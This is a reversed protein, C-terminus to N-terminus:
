GVNKIEHNMKYILGYRNPCIYNKQWEQLEKGSVKTMAQSVFDLTIPQNYLAISLIDASIVKMGGKNKYRGFTSEIIDSCCLLQDKGQYLPAHTKFYADITQIFQQAQLSLRQTSQSFAEVEQRWRQYSAESLGARKLITSSIRILERVEQLRCLLPCDERYFRLHNRAEESLRTWWQDMRDTWELLTFIRLFRDKVRLNPPLLINYDTLILRQRLEGTQACFAKLAEDQEFLQKVANMMVHTCDIVWCLGLQRVAARISTGQDSLLYRIKLHKYQNLRRKVFDVIAGSTWSQQVEMGLVVVEKSTLPACYCQDEQLPVGLMLLLKEKGIQISEDLIAVYQGSLDKAHWLAHLGCRCVWNRITSASPHKFRGKWGMLEAYFSATAAACRLSGGALVIFVALVMM